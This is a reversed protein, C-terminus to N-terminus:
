TRNYREEVGDQSANRQEAATQFAITGCAHSCARTTASPNAKYVAHFPSMRCCPKNVNSNCHQQPVLLEPCRCRAQSGHWAQAARGTSCLSANPRAAGSGTSCLSAQVAQATSGACAEAPHLLPWPSQGLCCMSLRPPKICHSGHGAHRAIISLASQLGTRCRLLQCLCLVVKYLQRQM